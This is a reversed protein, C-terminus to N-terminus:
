WRKLWVQSSPKWKKMRQASERKQHQLMQLVQPLLSQLQYPSIMRMMAQLVRLLKQVFEMKMKRTWQMPLEKANCDSTDLVIPPKTTPKNALISNLSEYFKWTIRKEGTKGHKDKIRRYELKLKKMKAHCQEATKIYKKKKM